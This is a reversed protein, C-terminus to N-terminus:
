EDYYLIGENKVNEYLNCYNNNFKDIDTIYVSPLDGFRNLVDMSFDCYVTDLFRWTEVPKNLVVMFDIDSDGTENGRAYSGFLWVQRLANGFTERSINVAEQM